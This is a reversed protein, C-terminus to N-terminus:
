QNHENKHQDACERYPWVALTPAIVGAASQAQKYNNQNGQKQQASNSHSSSHEMPLLPQCNFPDFAPCAAQKPLPRAVILFPLNINRLMLCNYPFLSPADSPSM